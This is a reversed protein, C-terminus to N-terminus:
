TKIFATILDENYSNKELTYNLVKLREGTLNTLKMVKLSFYM